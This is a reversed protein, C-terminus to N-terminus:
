AGPTLLLWEEQEKPVCALCGGQASPAPEPTGVPATLVARHAMRGGLAPLESDWPEAELLGGEGATGGAVWRCRPPQAPRVSLSEVRFFVVAILAAAAAAM